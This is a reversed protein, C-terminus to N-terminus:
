HWGSRRRSSQWFDMDRTQCSVSSPPFPSSKEMASHNYYTFNPNLRRITISVNSCGFWLVKPISSDKSRRSTPSHAPSAAPDKWNVRSTPSPCPLESKGASSLFLLKSVETAQCHCSSAGLWCIIWPQHQDSCSTTDGVPLAQSLSM